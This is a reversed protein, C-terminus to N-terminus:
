YLSVAIRRFLKSLHRLTVQVGDMLGPKPISGSLAASSWM